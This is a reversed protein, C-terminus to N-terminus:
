VEDTIVFASITFSITFLVPTLLGSNFGSNFCDHFGDFRRHGFTFVDIEPTEACEKQLFSSFFGALVNRFVCRNFNRGMHDRRKFRGPLEGSFNLGTDLYFLGHIGSRVLNVSKPIFMKLM